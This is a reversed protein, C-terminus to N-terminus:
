EGLKEAISSSAPLAALTDEQAQQRYAAGDVLQFQVLRLLFILLIIGAVIAFAVLRRRLSKPNPRSNELSPDGGPRAPKKM